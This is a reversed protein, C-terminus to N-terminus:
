SERDINTKNFETPAQQILENGTKLYIPAKLCFGAYKFLGCPELPLNRFWEFGNQTSSCRRFFRLGSASKGGNLLM